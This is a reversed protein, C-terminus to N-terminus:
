KHTKFDIKFAYAEINNTELLREIISHSKLNVNTGQLTNKYM